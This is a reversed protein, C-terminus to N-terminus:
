DLRQAAEACYAEHGALTLLYTDNESPELWGRNVLARASEPETPEQDCLQIRPDEGFASGVDASFARGLLEFESDTM